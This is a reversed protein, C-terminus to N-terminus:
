ALCHAPLVDQTKEDAGSIGMAASAVLNSLWRHDATLNQSDTAQPDFQLRDAIVLGAPLMMLVDARDCVCLLPRLRMGLPKNSNTTFHFPGDVEVAVKAPRLVIDVSFLRDETVGENEHAIGMHTLVESVSKHLYSICTSAVQEQWGQVAM